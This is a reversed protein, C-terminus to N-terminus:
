AFTYCVEILRLDAPLLTGSSVYITLGDTASLGTFTYETLNNTSVAYEGTQGVDNYPYISVNYNSGLEMLRNLRLTVSTITVGTFEKMVWLYSPNVTGAGFGEGTHYVARGALVPVYSQQGATLDDCESPPTGCEDWDEWASSPSADRALAGITPLNMGNFEQGALVFGLQITYMGSAVFEDTSFDGNVIYAFVNQLLSGVTLTSGARQSFYDFLDQYSLACDVKGLALCYLDEGVELKWEPTIAANYNEWIDTLLEQAMDLVNDVPTESLIPIADLMAAVREEDNTGIELIEFFDQNTGDMDDLIKLVRGAVVANDCDGKFLAGTVAEITLSSVRQTIYTNFEDSSSLADVVTSVVAPDDMLSEIVSERFSADNAFCAAVQECLQVPYEVNVLFDWIVQRGEDGYTLYAGNRLASLVRTFSEDTFKFLLYGGGEAESPFLFPAYGEEPVGVINQVIDTVIYCSM